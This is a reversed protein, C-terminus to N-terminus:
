QVIFQIVGIGVLMVFFVILFAVSFSQWGPRAQRKEAQLREVKHELRELSEKLDRIEREEAM